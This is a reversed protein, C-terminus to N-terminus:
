IEVLDPQGNANKPTRTPAGTQCERSPCGAELVSERRREFLHKGKLPLLEIENQLEHGKPLLVLSGKVKDSEIDFNGKSSM